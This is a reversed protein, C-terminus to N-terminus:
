RQVRVPVTAFTSGLPRPRAPLSRTVGATLEALGPWAAAILRRRAVGGRAVFEAVPRPRPRTGNMSTLM